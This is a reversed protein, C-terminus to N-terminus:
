TLPIPPVVLRCPRLQNEEQAFGRGDCGDDCPKSLTGIGELAKKFEKWALKYLQQAECDLEVWLFSRLLYQQKVARRNIRELFREELINFAPRKLVVIWFM